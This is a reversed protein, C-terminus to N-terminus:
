KLYSPIEYTANGDQAYNLELTPFTVTVPKTPLDSANSHNLYQILFTILQYGGNAEVDGVGDTYNIITYYIHKCVNDAESQIESTCQPHLNRVYFKPAQQMKTTLRANYNGSNHVAWTFNISQGPTNFQVKFGSLTTNTLTPKSIIKVGDSIHNISDDSLEVSGNSHDVYSHNVMTPLKNDFHVDWTTGEVTASGNITLTTSFAAFAVGLGVVAILLGIVAIITMGRNRKM